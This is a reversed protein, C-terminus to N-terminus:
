KQLNPYMYRVANLAVAFLIFTLVVCAGGWSLLDQQVQDPTARKILATAAPHELARRVALMLVAM